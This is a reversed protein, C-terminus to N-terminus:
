RTRANWVTVTAETTIAKAAPRTAADIAPPVSVCITAKQSAMSSTGSSASTLSAWAVMRPRPWMPRPNTGSNATAGIRTMRMTPM